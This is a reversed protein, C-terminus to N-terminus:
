GQTSKNQKLRRAAQQRAPSALQILPIGPPQVTRKRPTGRSSKNRRAYDDIVARSLQSELTGYPM